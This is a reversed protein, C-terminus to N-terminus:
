DVLGGSRGGRKGRGLAASRQVKMKGRATAEVKGARTRVMGRSTLSGVFPDDIKFTAKKPERVITELAQLENKSIPGAM